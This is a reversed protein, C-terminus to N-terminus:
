KSIFGIVDTRTLIGVPRNNEMVLVAPNKDALARIAAKVSDKATLTSLPPSMVDKAPQTLIEPNEFVGRMLRNESLTGRVTDGEIVPIFSVDHERVLDIAKQVPDTPEVSVLNPMSRSKASLIDAIHVSEPELFGNDRMWEDNYLKSLYREGTDPLLVIAVADAPADRLAKVAGALALGCSGGVLIGEERAARRAYTFCEQDSVRVVEDIYEFHTSTPIIDEGVGEVKYPRAETIKKTYFYDKLISGDPDVGIVKIDPNKEKLYKGTGSITGGTGLGAIFHTIKGKTQEWLEPGTSKYHSLPNAQNHYQNTHYSNPTEEVIREAVKYYSEPSDAPVATPAVFVEAGVAKLLNIKELSMKDPMTFVAKYGMVVAALALGMGTNGSTCEVITGGPKLRGEAEAAKIMAVGIRDKVSGGPNFSEVKAILGCPVEQGIKNLRVLPTNGITELINEKVDM